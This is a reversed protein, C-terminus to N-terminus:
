TIPNKRSRGFIHKNQPLDKLFRLDKGKKSSSTNGKQVGYSPRSCLTKINNLLGGRARLNCDKTECM